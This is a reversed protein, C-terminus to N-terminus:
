QRDPVGKLIDLAQAALEANGAREIAGCLFRTAVREASEAAAIAANM